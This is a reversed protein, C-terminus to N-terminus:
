GPTMATDSHPRTTPCQAARTIAEVAADTLRGLEDTRAGAKRAYEIGNRLAMVTRALGDPDVTAAVEGAQQAKCIHATLRGVLERYNAIARTRVLRDRSGLDTASQVLFCGQNLIRRQKPGDFTMAAIVGDWPSAHGDLTAQVDAQQQACYDDLVRLFLEHKTGFAGYLSQQGVGTATSLAQMSTDAYGHEWFEKQVQTLVTMDDFNRPRPM